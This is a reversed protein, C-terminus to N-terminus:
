ESLSGDDERPDPEDDPDTAFQLIPVEETVQYYYVIDSMETLGAIALDDLEYRVSADNVLDEIDHLRAALDSAVSRLLHLVRLESEGRRAVFLGWVMPYGTYEFWEQGLDLEVALPGASVERPIDEGAFLVADAQSELLRQASADEVPLFAPTLGYHERLVIRALFAEQGYRVDCAVTDAKGGLGNRLLIRATDSCWSSIALDPYVDFDDAESLVGVTAVLAVDALGSSLRRQCEWRDWREVTVGVLAGEEALRNALDDLSRDTWVALRLAAETQM